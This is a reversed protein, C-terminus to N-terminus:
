VADCKKTGRSRSRGCGEAFLEGRIDEQAATLSAHHLEFGIFRVGAFSQRHEALGQPHLEEAGTSFEFFEILIRIEVEVNGSHDEGSFIHAVQLLGEVFEADFGTDQHDVGGVLALQDLLGVRPRTRESGRMDDERMDIFDGAASFEPLEDEIIAKDREKGARPLVDGGIEVSM